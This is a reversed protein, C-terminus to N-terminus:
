HRVKLAIHIIICAHMSLQKLQTQSQAVGCITIQCVGRNMPNELCFYQLPNGHGGRPSRGSVPISGLDEAHRASEKGDSGGPFGMSAAAAWQIPATQFTLHVLPLIQKKTTRRISFGICVQKVLFLILQSIYIFFYPLSAKPIAQRPVLPILILRKPVQSLKTFSFSWMSLGDFLFLFKIELLGLQWQSENCGGFHENGHFLEQSKDQVHTQPM